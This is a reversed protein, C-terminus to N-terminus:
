RHWAQICEDIGKLPELRGAVSHSCGIGLIHTEGLTSYGWTYGGMLEDDDVVTFGRGRVLM